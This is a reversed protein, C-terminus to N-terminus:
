KKQAPTIRLITGSTSEVRDVFDGGILDHIHYHIGLKATKELQWKELEPLLIESFKRKKILRLLTARGRSLHKMFEGANPFSLWYSGVSRVVLLGVSMLTRIDDDKFNYKELLLDKEVGVDQIMPMAELLFRTVAHSHKCALSTNGSKKSQSHHSHCREITLAKTRASSQAESKLQDNRCGVAKTDAQCPCIRGLVHANFDESFIAAVSTDKMGLKFLRLTGREVLGGVEKDVVTRNTLLSYVQHVLVVPPLRYCLEKAPFLNKLQLFTAETEAACKSKSKCTSKSSKGCLSSNCYRRKRQAFFDPIAVKSNM